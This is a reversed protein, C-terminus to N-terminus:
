FDPLLQDAVNHPFLFIPKTDTDISHVSRILLKGDKSASPYLVKVEGDIDSVVFALMHSWAAVAGTRMGERDTVDAWGLRKFNRFLTASPVPWNYETQPLGENGLEQLVEHVVLNSASFHDAPLKSRLRDDLDPSLDGTEPDLFPM